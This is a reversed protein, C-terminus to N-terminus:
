NYSWITYVVVLGYYCEYSLFLSLKTIIEFEIEIRWNDCFLIYYLLKPVFISYQVKVMSIFYYFLSIQGRVWEVRLDGYCKAM